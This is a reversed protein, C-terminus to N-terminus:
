AKKRLDGMFSIIIDCVEDKVKGLPQNADVTFVLSDNFKLEKVTKIKKRLSCVNHDPKRQWAVNLDVDLKIVLDPKFESMWLFSKKEIYHALAMGSKEPLKMGDIGDFIESQPYRDTVITFGISNFFIMKLFKFIRVVLFFMTVASSLFTVRPKKSKLKVSNDFVKSKIKKGFFPIKILNRYVNGSGKGLHIKKCPGHPKLYMLVDHCVTSKGSGDSGIIAIVPPKKNNKKM